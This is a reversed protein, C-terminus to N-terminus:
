SLELLHYYTPNIGFEQVLVDRFKPEYFILKYGHNNVIKSLNEQQNTLMIKGEEGVENPVIM